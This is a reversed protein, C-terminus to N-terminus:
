HSIIISAINNDISRPQYYYHAVSVLNIEFKRGEIMVSSNSSETCTVHEEFNLQKILEHLSTLTVIESQLAKRIKKKWELQVYYQRLPFKYSNKEHHWDNSLSKQLRIKM